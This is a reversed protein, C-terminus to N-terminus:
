RRRKNQQRVRGLLQMHQAMQALRPPARGPDRLLQSYDFRDADDTAEPPPPQHQLVLSYWHALM